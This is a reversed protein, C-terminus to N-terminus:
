RQVIVSMQQAVIGLPLTAHSMGFQSLSLYSISSSLVNVKEIARFSHQPHYAHFHLQALRHPYDPRVAGALDSEITDLLEPAVIDDDRRNVEVQSDLSARHGPDRIEPVAPPRNVM